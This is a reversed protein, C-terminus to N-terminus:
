RRTFRIKLKITATSEAKLPVKFLLTYADKQEYEFNSALVEFFGWLRKEVTVSIDETKRNRLEIEIKREEVQKSVQVREVLKEEGIVDFATGITLSVKEDKPTHEIRDEGLLIVSGDSDAKFVRIRGGPLPMGLGSADSNVFEINVKVARPDRDPQFLFIKEVNASAPDFLSIQKIEKNALTTKRPLTYMHYEFFAKEEFGAGKAASMTMRDMERTPVGPRRQARHIDGAILKLKADRYTKGSVNNISSWGSLDLGTENENLLGVYEATWSLGATQYGIRGERSGSFDAQYQWFLTPRTILGEPLLPFNVETINAMTVIKIRGNDEKLTVANNSYALLEGSYLKGEKDILEIREDLYKAYMKEPSVLDYAYNQELITVNQGRDILEFRVSNVDILAPVDRFALRNIGKEFELTRTESIVGLNNNYVTVALEDAMAISSSLLILLTILLVRRAM